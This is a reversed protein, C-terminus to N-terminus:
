SWNENLADDDLLQLQRTELFFDQLFHFRKDLDSIEQVPEYTSYWKLINARQWSEACEDCIPAPFHGDRPECIYLTDPDRNCLAAIAELDRVASDFIIDANALDKLEEHEELVSASFASPIETGCDKCSLMLDDNTEQILYNLGVYNLDSCSHECCVIRYVPSHITRGHTSSSTLTRVGKSYDFGQILLENRSLEEILADLNAKTSTM